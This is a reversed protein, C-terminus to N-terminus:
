ANPSGGAWGGAPCELPLDQAATGGVTPTQLGLRWGDVYSRVWAGSSAGRSQLAVLSQTTQGLQDELAGLRQKLEETSPEGQLVAAAASVTLPPWRTTAYM